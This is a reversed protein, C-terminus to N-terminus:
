PLGDSRFVGQLVNEGWTGPSVRGSQSGGETKWGTPLRRPQDRSQGDKTVKEKGVAEGDKRQDKDTGKDVGRTTETQRELLKERPRRRHKEMEGTLGVGM